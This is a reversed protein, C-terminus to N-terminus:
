TTLGIVITTRISKVRHVYVVKPTIKWILSSKGGRITQWMSCITQLGIIKLNFRSKKQCKAADLMKKQRPEGQM